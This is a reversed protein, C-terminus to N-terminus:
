SDKGSLTKALRIIISVIQGNCKGILQTQWEINKNFQHHYEGGTWPIEMNAIEVM